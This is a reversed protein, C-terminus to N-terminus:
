KEQYPRVDHLPCRTDSCDTIASTDFWCCHLCQCKIRQMPSVRKGSYIKHFMLVRKPADEHIARIMKAQKADMGGMLQDVAPVTKMTEREQEQLVKVTKPGFIARNFVKSQAGGKQHCSDPRSFLSQLERM